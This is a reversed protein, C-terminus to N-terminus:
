RACAPGGYPPCHMGLGRLGAAALAVPCPSASVACACPGSQCAVTLKPDEPGIEGYEDQLAKFANEFEANQGMQLEELEKMEEQFSERQLMEPLIGSFKVAADFKALQM